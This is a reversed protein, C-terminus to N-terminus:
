AGEKAPGRSEVFSWVHQFVGKHCSVEGAELCCCAKGTLDEQPHPGMTIVADLAATRFCGRGM